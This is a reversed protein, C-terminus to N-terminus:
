KGKVQEKVSKQKSTAIEADLASAGGGFLLAFQAGVSVDNPLKKDQGQSQITEHGPTVSAGVDLNFHLFNLGFGGTLATKANSDAVNKSLGARLPINIWSRNFVNIETGLGMNQQKVGEVATLNRTLDADAVINWFGLPTIAVGLRTNGQVSYKSPLGAAVAQSPNTFRPNNVNRATLGIRPRLPVSEFTRNVDWMAGLDVGPQFSSAANKTFNGFSGNGPNTGVVGQDYFGVKGVMGKLAIGLDVGEAFPLAHGYALGIETVNIGSLRLASTNNGIFNAGLTASNHTMDMIPKAGVYAFNNAFMSFRGFKLGMGGGVDGRVGNNPQNLENLANTVNAQTCNATTGTGSCDKNLQNLDNAGKLVSGTIGLHGGMPVQLGSPNDALGLAAPNWYASQAGQPLAVGAGGMALARPGLVNWETASANAAFLLAVLAAITRTM